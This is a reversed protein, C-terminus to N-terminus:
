LLKTLEASDVVGSNDQDVDDFLQNCKDTDPVKINSDAHLIEKPVLETNAVKKTNSSSCGM